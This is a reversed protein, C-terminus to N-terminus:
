GFFSKWQRVTDPGMRSCNGVEFEFAPADWSCMVESLPGFTDRREPFLPLRLKLGAASLGIKRLRGSWSM